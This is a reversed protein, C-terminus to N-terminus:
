STRRDDPAAGSKPVAKYVLYTAHSVAMLQIFHQDLAPLKNLAGNATGFMHLLLLIYIGILLVTILLQQVKSLDIVGANAVEDGTVIDTWHAADGSTRGVARGSTTMSDATGDTTTALRDQAAAIQGANSDQSAKLALIAPTAATSFAAIGMAALLEPPIAINLVADIPVDSFYGLLNLKAATFLGSLVVITWLAMQLKSLSYDNWSSLAFGSVKGTVAYGLGLVIGTIAILDVIATVVAWFRYTAIGAARDGATLTVVLPIIITVVLILVCLVVFRGASGASRPNPM